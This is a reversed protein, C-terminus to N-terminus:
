TMLSVFVKLHLVSCPKFSLVFTPLTDNYRCNVHSHHSYKKRHVNHIVSYVCICLCVILKNQCRQSCTEVPISTSYKTALGDKGTFPCCTGNRFPFYLCHTNSSASCLVYSLISLYHSMVPRLRLTGPMCVPFVCGCQARPLSGSDASCQDRQNHHTLLNWM